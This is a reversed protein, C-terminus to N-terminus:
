SSASSSRGHRCPQRAPTGLPPRALDESPRSPAGAARATRALFGVLAAGLGPRGRRDRHIGVAMRLAAGSLSGGAPALIAGINAGSNFIGTALARERQPFWDAVTRIAAPFNASESLGLAFRASASAWPAARWRTRGHGGPEVVRRSRCLGPAHGGLRDPPRRLADDACLGVPVRLRDLRLGSRALRAGKRARPKLLGLVQRDVYNITTAFFLLGCVYWRFRM